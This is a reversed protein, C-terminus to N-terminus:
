AASAVPPAVARAMTIHEIGAEDFPEGRVAFGQRRYFGEASRQAHLLVEGDGRERAVTVLAELIAAGIGAGRMDHRVAMRGIKAVGPSHELLRGTGLAMGFRNYAVAHVANADAADWELEAPIKQEDVFVAARLAQAERGLEDWTGTRVDLVPEGREFADLAARLQAPVPQSTQTAPDAFVYVLEGSVLLEDGRFVAGMFQMSSNGIRACRLGVDLRDEYHASAHYELTAKRVYLDGQLLAMTEHYPLAMARWYGAVATDFYMLYHGNFVIKQMDVEAWRVRLTDFFRFDRRTTM